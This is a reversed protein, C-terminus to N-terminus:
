CAQETTYRWNAAEFRRGAGHGDGKASDAHACLEGANSRATDAWKKWLDKDYLLKLFVGGVVPRATFGVKKADHTHYWDTMPSKDPTEELFRFVPSVLAQFDDQNETLTATWLIWDLKTYTSRNDLPLGYKNQVKFYYDMEKRRVSDSFLDLGSCATGSWTTNRVGVRPRDFTLRYHDGADAEVVWRDAFERAVERYETPLRNTAVCRAFNHM